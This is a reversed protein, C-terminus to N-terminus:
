IMRKPRDLIFESLAANINSLTANEGLLLMRNEELFGLTSLANDVAQADSEAYLLPALHNGMGVTNVGVCVSYRQGTTQLQKSM